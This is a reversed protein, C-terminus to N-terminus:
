TIICDPSNSFLKPGSANWDLTCEALFSLPVFSMGRLTNQNQRLQKANKCSTHENFAPSFCERDLMTALIGLIKNGSHKILSRIRYMKM